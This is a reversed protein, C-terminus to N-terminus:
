GERSDFAFTQEERKRLDADDNGAECSNGRRQALAPCRGLPHLKLNQHNGAHGDHEEGEKRRDEEIDRM